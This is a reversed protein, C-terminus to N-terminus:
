HSIDCCTSQNETLRDHHIFEAILAAMAIPILWLQPHHMFSINSHHLAVWLGLNATLVALLGCGLSRRMYALLGYFAGM